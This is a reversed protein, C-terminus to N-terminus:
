GGARLAILCHGPQVAAHALEGGLLGGGERQDRAVRVADSAIKQGTALRTTWVKVGNAHFKSAASSPPLGQVVSVGALLLDGSPDIAVSAGGAGSGTLVFKRNGGVDYKVTFPISNGEPPNTAGTAYVNGSGDVALGYPIQPTFRVAVFDKVWVKNGQIDLKLTTMTNAVTSVRINTTGLVVPKGAPDLQIDTLRVDGHATGTHNRAWLLRGAGTYKAILWEGQFDGTVRTGAAYVNGGGDIALAVASTSFHRAWRQSGSATFSVVLGGLTTDGVAYINGLKDVKVDRALGGFEGAAPRYRFAGQLTGDFRYKLVAFSSPHLFDTALQAAIYFNGSADTTLRGCLDDGGDAFHFARVSPSALASVGAPPFTTESSIQASRATSSTLFAPL